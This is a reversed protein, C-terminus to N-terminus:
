ESHLGRENITLEWRHRSKGDKENPNRRYMALADDAERKTYFGAFPEGNCKILYRANKGVPQEFQYSM